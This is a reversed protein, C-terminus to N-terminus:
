LKAPDTALIATIRDIIASTIGSHVPITLLKQSFERARPFSSSDTALATGEIDPLPLGYMASVGVGADRCREILRDRAEHSAALLPYRLLRDGAYTSLVRPLDLVHDAATDLHRALEGRISNDGAAHRAVAVPLIKETYDDMRRIGALPRYRTNGAMGLRHLLAFIVPQRAANFTATRLRHGAAGSKSDAAATITASVSAALPKRAILAGGHLLNVPKGRGFSLIKYAAGPDVRLSAPMSQCSDDIVAAGSEAAIEAIADLREAIGLFNVAIIAVTCESLGARICALDMHTSNAELDVLVPRAGAFHVASLVDPCCYAPLLVEPQGPVKKAAMADLVALALAATGCNVFCTQGDQTEQYSVAEDPEHASIHVAEAVTPILGIM